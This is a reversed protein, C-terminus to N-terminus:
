WSIFPTQKRKKSYSGAASKLNWNSARVDFNFLNEEKERWADTEWVIILQPEM